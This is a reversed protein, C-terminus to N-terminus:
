HNDIIIHSSGGALCAVQYWLVDGCISEERALKISDVSLGLLVVFCVLSLLSGGLLLLAVRIYWVLVLFLGIRYGIMGIYGEENPIACLLLEVVVM